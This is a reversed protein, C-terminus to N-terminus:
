NNPFLFVLMPLRGVSPCLFLNLCLKGDKMIVRPRKVSQGNKFRLVFLPHPSLGKGTCARNLSRGRSTAHLRVFLNVRANSRLILHTFVICLCQFYYTNIQYSIQGSSHVERRPFPRKFKSTRNCRLISMVIKFNLLCLLKLDLHKPTINSICIFWILSIM